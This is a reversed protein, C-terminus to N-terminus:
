PPAATLSLPAATASTAITKNTTDADAVGDGVETV